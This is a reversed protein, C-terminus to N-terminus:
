SMYVSQLNTLLREMNFAAIAHSRAKNSANQMWEPSDLAKAAADALAEASLHEAVYGTIGDLITEPAGGAPTTIVPLGSLQAEICVNPLGEIDSSLMFLDMCQLANQAPNAIGPLMFRSDLGAAQVAEKVERMLVGHGYFVFYV